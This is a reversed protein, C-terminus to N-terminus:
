PIDRSTPQLLSDSLHHSLLDLSMLGGDLDSNIAPFSAYRNMTQRSASALSKKTMQFLLSEVIESYTRERIFISGTVFKLKATDTILTTLSRACRRQLGSLVSSQFNSCVLGAFQPTVALHMDHRRLFSFDDESSVAVQRRFSRDRKTM